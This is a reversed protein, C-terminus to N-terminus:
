YMYYCTVVYTLIVSEKENSVGKAPLDVAAQQLELHMWLETPQPLLLLLWFIINTRIM